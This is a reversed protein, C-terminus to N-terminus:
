NISGGQYSSVDIGLPRQALASGAGGALALVAALLAASKASPNMLSTKM